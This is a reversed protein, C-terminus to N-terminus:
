DLTGAPATAFIERANYLCVARVIPTLFEISAPLLGRGAEEGLWNCFVRRFYEHRTFSLFSRSDTVMGPFHHLLGLSAWADLQAAIGHRQDLFWWASGQRVRAKEGDLPFSGCLAAFAANDAPNLNYLIVAPLTDAQAWRDLLAALESVPISDGITDFGTDAGLTRMLPGNPNRIAGLHFQATWGLETYVAVLEDLVRVRLADLEAPSPEQGGLLRSFAVEAAVASGTLGPLRTLGHDAMRCGLDHFDQARARLAALLGDLSEIPRNAQASLRERWRNWAASGSTAFAQDPRFTPVMRFTASPDAAFAQHHELSDAPDDTTGVLEVGMRALLARPRGQESSLFDSATEWIRDATSESVLVGELGIYRDLELHSWAFLPNGATFPVTRAFADFRERASAPGTILREPIGNARMARSKYHDGDLWAESLDAFPRNSAIREPSLHNHFDVIPLGAAVEHFLRRALPSALLFDDSLFGDM